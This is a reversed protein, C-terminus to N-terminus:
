IVGELDRRLTTAQGLLGRMVLVLLGCTGGALLMLMMLM